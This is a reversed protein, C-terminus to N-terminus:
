HYYKINELKNKRKQTEWKDLTVVLGFDLMMESFLESEKDKSIENLIGNYMIKRIRKDLKSLTYFDFVYYEKKNNTEIDNLNYFDLDLFLHQAMDLSAESSCLFELLDLVFQKIDEDYNSDLFANLKEIKM